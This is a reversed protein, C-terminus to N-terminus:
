LVFPPGRRFSAEKDADLLSSFRERWQQSAFEFVPIFHYSQPLYATVANGGDLIHKSISKVIKANLLFHHMQHIQCGDQENEQHETHEDNVNGDETCEVEVFCIKDFHHHHLVVTSLLMSCTALFLTFIYLKHKTMIM